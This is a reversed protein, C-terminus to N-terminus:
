ASLFCKGKGFIREKYLAASDSLNICFRSIDDLSKINLIKANEIANYFFEIYSKIEESTKLYNKGASFNLIANSFIEQYDFKWMEEKFLTSLEKSSNLNTKDGLKLRELEEAAEISILSLDKKYHFKNTM